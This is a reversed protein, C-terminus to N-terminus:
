SVPQEREPGVIQQAGRILSIMPQSASVVDVIHNLCNIGYHRLKGPHDDSAFTAVRVYDLFHSRSYTQFLRGTWKESEDVSVFSEDRVSYAVYDQFLIEYANCSEDAVLEKVDSLVNSLVVDGVKLDESTERQQAESIVIRLVNDSPENIEILYIFRHSEIQDIM